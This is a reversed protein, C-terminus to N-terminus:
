TLADAVRYIERCDFLSMHDLPYDSRCVVESLCANLEELGDVHVKDLLVELLHECSVEALVVIAFDRHFIFKLCESGVSEALIVVCNIDLELEVVRHNETEEVFLVVMEAHVQSLAEVHRVDENGCLEEGGLLKNQLLRTFSTNFDREVVVVHRHLSYRSSSM